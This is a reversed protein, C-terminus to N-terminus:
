QNHFARISDADFWHGTEDDVSVIKSLGLSDVAGDEFKVLRAQEGARRQHSAGTTGIL